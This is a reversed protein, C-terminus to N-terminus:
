MKAIAEDTEQRTFARLTETRINGLAGVSYLLSTLTVDDPADLVAALDYRGMTRYVDTVRAGVKECQKRFADERKLSDRVSRIGQDTFNGLVIYTPMAPSRATQRRDQGRAGEGAVSRYRLRRADDIARRQTYPACSRDAGSLLHFTRESPRSAYTSLPRPPGSHGVGDDGHLPRHLDLFHNESRHAPRQCPRLSRINQPHVRPAQTSPARPLLPHAIVPQQIPPALPGRRPERRKGLDLADQAEIPLPVRSEVDPVEVLEHTAVLVHGEGVGKHLRGQLLSPQHGLTARAAPMAPAALGARAEALQQMQVAARMGPERPTGVLALRQDGHEVIGGLTQKVGLEPGRLGRRRHHTRQAVDKAGAAQRARQVGIAGAPRKGRGLGAAGDVAGVQRVDAPGQRVQP